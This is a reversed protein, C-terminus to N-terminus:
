LELPKLIYKVVANKNLLKNSKYNTLLLATPNKNTQKKMRINWFERGEAM